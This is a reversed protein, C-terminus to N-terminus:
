ERIPALVRDRTLTSSEGSALVKDGTVISEGALAYGIM